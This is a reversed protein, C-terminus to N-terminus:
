GRYLVRNGLIFTLLFNGATIIKTDAANPLNPSGESSTSCTSSTISKIINNYLEGVGALNRRFSLKSSICSSDPRTQGM